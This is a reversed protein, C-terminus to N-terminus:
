QNTGELKILTSSRPSLFLQERQSRTKLGSGEEVKALFRSSRALFSADDEDVDDEDEDVDWGDARSSFGLSTLQTAMLM